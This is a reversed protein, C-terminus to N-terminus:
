RSRDYSMSILNARQAPNTGVKGTIKSAYSLGVNGATYLTKRYKGTGATMLTGDKVLDDPRLKIFAPQENMEFISIQHVLQEKTLPGNYFAVYAAIEKRSFVYSDDFKYLRKRASRINDILQRSAEWKPDQKFLDEELERLKESSKEIENELKKKMTTM